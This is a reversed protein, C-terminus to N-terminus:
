RASRYYGSRRAERQADASVELIKEGLKKGELEITAHVLIPRESASSSAGSAVGGIASALMAEMGAQPGRSEVQRRSLVYDQRMAPLDVRAAEAMQRAGARVRSFMKRFGRLMGEGIQSTDREARASPSRIEFFDTVQQWAQKALEFLYKLIEGARRALGRLWGFIISEGVWEFMTRLREGLMSILEGLDAGLIRAISDYLPAGILSRLRKKLWPGFWDLRFGFLSQLGDNILKGLRGLLRQIDDAFEVLIQLAVGAPGFIAGMGFRGVFGRLIGLLVGRGGFFRTVAAGLTAFWRGAFRLANGVARPLLSLARGAARVAGSFLRGVIGPIGRLASSVFRAVGRLAGSVTRGMFSLARGGARVTSTFIRGVFGPIGRLAGSVIRGIGRLAASVARGMFSLARGAARVASSFIQRVFRPIGRLASGFIRGVGRLATAVTRGLFSLARGGARVASSFLRGVLGPVGRLARIVLRPVVLLARLVFRGISSLARGAARGAGSLLRGVLQPIGRLLRGILRPLGGLIRSTTRRIRDWAYLVRLAVDDFAGRLLAGLRGIWGFGPVRSLLRLVRYLGFLSGALGVLAAGGFFALTGLFTGIGLTLPGLGPINLLFLLVDGIRRIVSLAVLIGEPNNALLEVFEAVNELIGKFQDSRGVKNLFRVVDVLVDVFIGAFYKADEFFDTLSREGAVSQSWDLFDQAKEALYGFFEQVFPTAVSFVNFLGFFFSTLASVASGFMGPLADFFRKFSRQQEPSLLEISLGDFVDHLKEGIGLTVGGLYPLTTEALGLIRVILGNLSDRAPAFAATFSSAFSKLAGLLAQESASLVAGTKAAAETVEEQARGLNETEETVDRRADLIDRDRQLEALRFDERAGDLDLLRDQIERDTERATRRREEIAQELGEESERVRENGEARTEEISRLQENAQKQGELLSRANEEEVLRIEARAERRRRLAEEEREANEEQVAGVEQRLEAIRREAANEARDNEELLRRYAERGEAVREVQEEVERANGVRLRQYNERQEVIRAEAAAEARDNEELLRGYAERGEAIRELQEEVAADRERRALAIGARAEELAEEADDRRKEAEAVQVLQEQRAAFAAEVENRANQLEESVGGNQLREIETRLKDREERARELDNEALRYERDLEGARGTDGAALADSREQAM